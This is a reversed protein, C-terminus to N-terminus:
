QRRLSGGLRKEEQITQRVVDKIKLALNQQQDDGNGDQTETGDSNVTINIITEGSGGLEDGLNNIAAVIAGDGGEGGGGSNLAALNGRGMRQTAAANMVFEGGSLMSPVTDVGATPSVYGGAARGLIGFLGTNGGEVMMRVENGIATIMDLTHSLRTPLSLNSSHTPVDGYSMGPDGYHVPLPPTGPSINVSTRRNRPTPTTSTTPTFTAGAPGAPRESLRRPSIDEGSPKPTQPLKEALYDMGYSLAASGAAALISNRFMKRDEKNQQRVQEEYQIQRTYLGFAERQSEQERQFLPSNRRGFMTLRASMPELSASGYGEGGGVQDFQGGTYSQTAFDLLNGKGKIAGQGYTGPTFFGGRQMQGVRGANLGEFFQTGYKEVAGKRVVFEGGTLLTPVDDRKGSGGTILGGKNRGTLLSLLGRLVGGGGGGGGGAPNPLASGVIQNVASQLYAKSLLTFFDTAASRLVDGLNGGQIISDVMADSMTDKFNIAANEVKTALADANTLNDFEPREGIRALASRQLDSLLQANEPKLGEFKGGVRTEDVAQQRRQAARLQSPQGGGLGQQRQLQIIQAELANFAKTRETILEEEAQALGIAANTNERELRAKRDLDDIQKRVADGEAGSPLSKKFDKLFSIAADFSGSSELQALLNDSQVPGALGIGKTKSLGRAEELLAAESQVKGARLLQTQNQLLEREVQDRREPTTIGAQQERNLSAQRAKLTNINQAQGFDVDFRERAALNSLSQNADALADRRREASFQAKLAQELADKDIGLGKLKEANILLIKNLQAEMGDETLTNIDLTERLIEVAREKTIVDERSLKNIAGIVKQVKEENSVLDNLTDAAQSIISLRESILKKDLDRLAIIERVIRLEEQTKDGLLGAVKLQSELAVTSTLEAEKRKLALKILEKAQESGIQEIKELTKSNALRKAKDDSLAKSAVLQDVFEQSIMGELGLKEETIRLLDQSLVKLSLIHVDAIDGESAPIGPAIDPLTPRKSLDRSGLSKNIEATIKGARAMDRAFQRAEDIDIEFRVEEGFPIIDDPHFVRADPGQKKKGVTGQGKKRPRGSDTLLDFTQQLGLRTREGELFESSIGQLLAFEVAGQMIKRTDTGPFKLRDFQRFIDGQQEFTHGSEQFKFGRNPQTRMRRGRFAEGEPQFFLSTSIEDNTPIIGLADAFGQGKDPILRRAEFELRRQQAKTLDDMSRSAGETAEALIEMADKSKDTIGTTDEVIKRWGKWVSIGVGLAAGYVGLKKVVGGVAGRVAGGSEAISKGFDNLATGAFAASTVGGLATSLRNTFRGIGKEADATSASLFSLGAQVAFIPGLLDRQAKAGKKKEKTNRETADTNQKQAAAARGMHQERAEPSIISFNPVRGTPEDRTNTVALGSPNGANRLKPSQNVRVQNIPVGASSERMIADELAGAFNPIYGSAASGKKTFAEKGKFLIKFIKEATSGILPDGAGGKAELGKTAKSKPIDFLPANKIKKIQGSRFDMLSTAARTKFDKFSDADLLAALGSEFVSGAASRASGENLSNEIDKARVGKKPIAGGGALRAFDLSETLLQDTLENVLEANTKGKVKSPNVGFVPVDVVARSNPTKTKTANVGRKTEGVYMKKTLSGVPENVLMGYLTGGKNLTPLPLRQQAKQTRLVGTAIGAAKPNRTGRSIREIDSRAKLTRGGRSSEQLLGASALQQESYGTGMFGAQAFNPIYGHAAGVKRARAPLGMSSAMHQNFIASGSGGAFNPVIFESSNAVMTGRQGGGFNFNPITVPRASSPAGGVGRAINEKESGYGSVADFNPIYGGAAGGRARTGRAVAPAIRSAIGQMQTMVRLQENLATTFFKIQAARKQETSLTSNEIALIQTQIGKNGLLTSAIQGQLTAQQQAAKNLGFFTKLSGTGFKVLDITLKAIIAGFIALGPGSLVGGIGKVIGKAFDSGLGEGQLLDKINTVLTNFFGLVNRLSDTIGVEGLTNALEKLNVTAENIAAALTKNLAVNREYAERTANQSVETIRIATSTKSNYDDLIALFPAIQFKGVLNEAIQLKKADPLTNIASGLNQILKTASLVQGSADTVQVGLDQMTKLKDLSQIRTFITKFSNGIVAGGRATREQVASIVGVLENLSVGAQTAVSGSRKIGEILDRESVAASIAAASLKNLVEASSVGEKRFSNIAATLGAVAESAGLGSLRSLILSDNLRKIVVEAKLGQRSLELAAEAVTDFSQETTRAVDFITKKFKDLEGSTQRLISNISTMQKEVQITTTVLEKFGQTVASLVGVSAGFALVRANAAEMSKTFQDAKGTIRGLPQSLGEISKASTGLNIKLNKGAKKAQAAISAELGTVTAPIRLPM